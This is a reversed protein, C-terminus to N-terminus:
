RVPPTSFRMTKAPMTGPIETDRLGRIFWIIGIVVMMVGAIKFLTYLIDPIDMTEEKRKGQKPALRDPSASPKRSTCGM